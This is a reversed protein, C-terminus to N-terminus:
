IMPTKRIETAWFSAKIYDGESCYRLETMM